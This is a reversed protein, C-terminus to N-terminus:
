GSPPPTLSHRELLAVVEDFTNRSRVALEVARSVDLTAGANVLLKVMAVHGRKAAFHLPTGTDFPIPYCSEPSLTLRSVADVAAGKSLLWEAFKTQNHAAAFHLPTRALWDNKSNIDAGYSVLRGAIHLLGNRAADHVPTGSWKRRLGIDAGAALLVDVIRHHDRYPRFNADPANDVRCTCIAVHLPTGAVGVTEDLTELLHENVDCGSAVLREVEATNGSAVAAHLRHRTWDLPPYYEAM